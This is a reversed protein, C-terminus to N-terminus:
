GLMSTPKFGYLLSNLGDSLNTGRVRKTIITRHRVRFTQNDFMDLRKGTFGAMPVKYVGNKESIKQDGKGEVKSSTWSIENGKEEDNAKELQTVMSLTSENRKEITPSKPNDSFSLSEMNEVISDDFKGRSGKWFFIVCRWWINITNVQVEKVSTSEVEDDDQVIEQNLESLSFSDSDDEEDDSSESSSTDSSLITTSLSQDEDDFPHDV